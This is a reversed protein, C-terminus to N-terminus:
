QGGLMINVLDFVVKKAKRKGQLEDRMLRMVDEVTARPPSVLKGIEVRAQELDKLFRKQEKSYGALSIDEEGFHFAIVMDDLSNYQDFYMMDITVTTMVNSPLDLMNTTGVMEQARAPEIPMFGMKGDGGVYETEGASCMIARTVYGIPDPHGMPRVFQEYIGRLDADSVIM